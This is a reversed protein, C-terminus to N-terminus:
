AAIMVEAAVRVAVLVWAAAVAAAINYRTMHEVAEMVAFCEQKYAELRRFLAEVAEAAQM